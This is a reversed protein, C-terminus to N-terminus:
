KFPNWDPLGDIETKFMEDDFIPYVIAKCYRCATGKQTAGDAYTNMLDVEEAKGCECKNRSYSRWNNSLEQASDYLASINMDSTGDYEFFMIKGDSKFRVAGSAHSM